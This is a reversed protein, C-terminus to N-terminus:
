DQYGLFSLVSNKFTRGIPIEHNKIEIIETTFARIRSVSVLYSRHTRIFESEPLLNELSSIKEKTIIIEGDLHIRVYDKLSEIFLIENLYVKVVKRDSRVYIFPEQTIEPNKAGKIEIGENSKLMYFKSISKFLRDFSIPKLLYDIVDLEYAELAFNRYATTFTVAPTKKVSKLLDIGSMEPMEVDLFMLDVKKKLLVEFAEMANRCVGVIEINPIKALHNEIVRAALPEDDVIICKTKM